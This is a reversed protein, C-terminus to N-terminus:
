RAVCLKRPTKMSFRSILLRARSSHCYLGQPPKLAKCNQEIIQIPHKGTADRLIVSEPEVQETVEAFNADNEGPRLHLHIVQKVVAFDQNYVTIAIGDASDKQRPKMEQGALAPLTALTLIYVWM